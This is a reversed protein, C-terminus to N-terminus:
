WDSQELKKLAKSAESEPEDEVLGDNWDSDEQLTKMLRAKVVARIDPPTQELHDLVIGQLYNSVSRRELAALEEIRRSVEVPFSVVM